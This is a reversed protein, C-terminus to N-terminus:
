APSRPATVPRGSAWDGDTALHLGLRHLALRVENLATDGFQRWKRLQTPTMAALQEVTTIGNGYLNLINLVRQSLGLASLDTSGGGKL